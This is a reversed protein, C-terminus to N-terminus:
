ESPQKRKPPDVFHFGTTQGNEDLTTVSVDQKPAGFARNFLQLLNYTGSSSMDKLIAKVFLRMLIPQTEDKELEKLEAETMPLIYKITASLDTASLGNDEIYKKLRSPKRGRNAPQNESSFRHEVPPHYKGVKPKNERNDGSQNSM